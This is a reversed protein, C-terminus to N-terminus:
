MNINFPVAVAFRSEGANFSGGATDRPNHGATYTFSGVNDQGWYEVTIRLTDGKKYNTKPVTIKVVHGFSSNADFNLNATEGSAIDTETVGDWKRVKVIIKMTRTGAGGIITGTTPARVYVDGRITQPLNFSSMDYDIDGIKSMSSNVVGLTTSIVNGPVAVSVINSGISSPYLFYETGGTLLSAYGDFLVYGAGSAIDVWDFNIIAERGPPFISSM